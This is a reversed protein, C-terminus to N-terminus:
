GGELATVRNELDHVADLIARMAAVNPVPELGAEALTPTGFAPNWALRIAKTLPPLSDADATGTDYTDSM